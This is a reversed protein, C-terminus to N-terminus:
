SLKYVVKLSRFNEEHGKIPSGNEYLQAVAGDKPWCHYPRQFPLYEMFFYLRIPLEFSGGWQALLMTTRVYKLSEGM